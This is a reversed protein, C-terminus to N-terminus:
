PWAPISYHTDDSLTDTTVVDEVLLTNISMEPEMYEKM